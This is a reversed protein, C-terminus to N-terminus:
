FLTLQKSQINDIEKYCEKIYFQYNLNYDKMDKEEYKNFITVEFGKNIVESTGKNYRKVFSKGKNSIFYRVNRQQNEIHQYPNGKDDYKLESTQGYSDKNFKQRGCFDYINKWEKITEEVPINNFFYNSLAIPVIKFSNDKHFDKEIEFRGKYKLKSDVSIAAYNNVDAIIMKQYEVFELQLKTLLSWEECLKYYADLLKKNILVTIGDTNVQLITIDPLELLDCILMTILLQGNVTTRMTYLSDKLFSNDDNSKGYVSNASLKYGDSLTQYIERDTISLTKDNAKTKAELRIDVIDEKYVKIFDEGLHEPYFNNVIALSPYLSSVDCDIIIHTDNSKYIGSKNCAHIGGTGYLYKVGKYIVHEDIAGKTTTIIKSKLKNLLEQFPKIKFQIYPLICDSIKIEKRETRLKKVDWFNLGTRDCYLKLALQEGIKSDSFNICKLNYKKELEIRLKIKNKSKKYFEYTALVDNLNYDLIDQVEELSIDEKTHPIISEMVNPFNMAIELSKLSTKRAANNFHWMKFLDMQPIIVDKNPIAVIDVFMSANQKEIIEQAKDYILNIYETSACETKHRYKNIFYHIIPYDFNLNNFGVQGKLTSLHKYLAESDDRDKHIVFQKIEETKTNIDTYTFCSKLTEIDYITVSM